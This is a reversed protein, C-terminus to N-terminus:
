TMPDLAFAKPLAYADLWFLREWGDTATALVQLNEGFAAKSCGGRMVAEDVDNAFESSANRDFGDVPTKTVLPANAWPVKDPDAPACAAPVWGSSGRVVTFKFRAFGNPHRAKFSLHVTPNSLTSGTAYSIFGCKGASIGNVSAEYIEAECQNNDVHLYFVFGGGEIEDSRARRTIIAGDADSGVPVIFEFTAGPDILTGKVDYVKPKILTGDKDYVELKIKYKGAASTVGGPLNESQLIGSYIDAFWDDVPWVRKHGSVQPPQHPKFEYLQMGNKEQPGLAYVPFTPPLEPHASDIDVYHRVVTEAVPAAFERWNTEAGGSDLQNYLWRYYAPKGPVDYPIGSSYGLRFGLRGGFTVDVWAGNADTFDTLGSSRIQDLRIGGVGWPMVWLSAGAPPDVPDSPLYTFAAPDDTELVVETGSIYNWYTHDAVSPAYVTHLTGGICQKAEFYLGWDMGGHALIKARFRGQEDTQVRRILHPIVFPFPRFPPRPKHVEYIEICAPGVGLEQTTGDPQLVGKVLRGQVFCPRVLWKSWDPPFILADVVAGQSTLSVRQEYGGQRVLGALSLAAKQAQGQRVLRDMWVPIEDREQPQRPGLVVRATTGALELPLELKVQGQEGKPLPAAALFQGTADFAYAMVEPLEQGQAEELRVNVTLTLKTKQEAM